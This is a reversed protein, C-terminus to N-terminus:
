NKYVIARGVGFEKAIDTVSEGAAFLAIV